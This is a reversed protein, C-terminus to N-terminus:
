ARAPYERSVRSSLEGNRIFPRRCQGSLRLELTRKESVICAFHRLLLLLLLLRGALLGRRVLASSCLMIYRQKVGGGRVRDRVACIDYKRDLYTDLVSACLRTGVRM